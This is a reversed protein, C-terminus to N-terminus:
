TPRRVLCMSLFVRPRGQLFSFFFLSSCSLFQVQAHMGGANTDRERTMHLGIFSDQVNRSVLNKWFLLNCVLTM